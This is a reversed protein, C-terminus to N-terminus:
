ETFALACNLPPLISVVLEGRDLYNTGNAKLVDKAKSLSEVAVVVVKRVEAPDYRSHFETDTLGNIASLNLTSAVQHGALAFVESLVDIRRLGTATNPHHTMRDSLTDSSRSGSAVAVAVGFQRVNLQAIEIVEDSLHEEAPFSRILDYRDSVCEAPIARLTKSMDDTHFLCGGLVIKDEESAFGNRLLDFWANKFFICNSRWIADPYKKSRYECSPSVM